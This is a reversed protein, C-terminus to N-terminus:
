LAKSLVPAYRASLHDVAATIPQLDLWTRRIATLVARGFWEKPGFWFPVRSFYRKPDLGSWGSEYLSVASPRCLFVKNGGIFVPTLTALNQMMFNYFGHMVGPWNGNFVDDVAIVGNSGLAREATALDAMVDAPMHGGDIHFFRCDRTTEDPTLLESRKAYIRLGAVDACYRKFNQEFIVRNGAGSDDRNLDQREFVDCVGLLEDGRRMHALQIATKGHHVGIEFLNGSIDSEVQIANIAGFLYADVPFFWGSVPRTATLYATVERAQM